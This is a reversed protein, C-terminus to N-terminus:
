VSYSGGDEKHIIGSLEMETLLINIEQASLGLMECLEDQTKEGLLLTEYVVRQEKPLDAARSPNVPMGSAIDLAADTKIRSFGYEVLIDDVAFVAKAEGNKIMRNTGVSMLDTIRGPVAFVDRGQEHAFGVTISTGSRTGAEAVLVGKSMGSIIRNRRPFSERSGKVSLGYESIVAGREAIANYLKANSSPYIVDIGTGLVAATPYDADKVSLAGWASASDCGDAMGSIVCAGNKVLEQGFHKAVFRGYDTCKRSGVIAIPLAHDGKLRGKVFLVTPPDFIERLLKPYDASERTVAYFGKSDLRKIYADIMGEDRNSKLRSKQQATVTDPLRVDFDKLASMYLAEIGDNLYVLRDITSISMGLSMNLWIWARDKLSYDRM